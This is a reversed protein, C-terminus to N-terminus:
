GCVLARLEGEEANGFDVMTVTPFKPANAKPKAM